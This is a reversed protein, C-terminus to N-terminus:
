CKAEDSFYSKTAQFISALLIPSVSHSNQYKDVVLQDDLQAILAFIFQAIYARDSQRYQQLRHHLWHTINTTIQSYDDPFSQATILKKLDPAFRTFLEEIVLESHRSKASTTSLSPLKGYNPDKQQRRKAEGM